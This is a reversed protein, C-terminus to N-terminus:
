ASASFSTSTSSLKWCHRKRCIVVTLRIMPKLLPVPGQANAIQGFRELQLEKGFEPGHPSRDSSPGRLSCQPNATPDGAHLELLPRPGDSWRSGRAESVWSTLCREM